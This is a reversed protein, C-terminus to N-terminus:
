DVRCVLSKIDPSLELFPLVCVAGLLLLVGDLAPAGAVKLLLISEERADGAPVAKRGRPIGLVSSLMALTLVRDWASELGKKELLLTDGAAFHFCAAAAAVAGSCAM